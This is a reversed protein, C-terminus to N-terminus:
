VGREKELEKLKDMLDDESRLCPVAMIWEKLENIVELAGQKKGIDIGKSKGAEFTAKRVILEEEDTYDNM